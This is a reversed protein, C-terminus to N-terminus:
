PLEHDMVAHHGAAGHDIARQDRERFDGTGYNCEDALDVVDAL